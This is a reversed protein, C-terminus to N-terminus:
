RPLKRRKSKGKSLTNTIGEACVGRVAARYMGAPLEPHWPRSQTAIFVLDCSPLFLPWMQNRMTPSNLRMTVSDQKLISLLCFYFFAQSAPSPQFDNITM